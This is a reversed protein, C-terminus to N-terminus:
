VGLVPLEDRRGAEPGRPSIQQGERGEISPVLDWGHRMGQLIFGVPLVCGAGSGLADPGVGVRTVSQEGIACERVAGGFM